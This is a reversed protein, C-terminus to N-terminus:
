RSRRPSGGAPLGRPLGRVKKKKSFDFEPEEDSRHHAIVSDALPADPPSLACDACATQRAAPTATIHRAPRRSWNQKQQSSFQDGTKATFTFSCVGVSVMPRPPPKSQPGCADCHHMFHRQEDCVVATRIATPAVQPIHRYPRCKRSNQTVIDQHIRCGPRISAYMSKSLHGCYDAGGFPLGCM